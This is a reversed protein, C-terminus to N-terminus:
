VWGQHLRTKVMSGQGATIFPVSGRATLGGEPVGNSSESSSARKADTAGRAEKVDRKDAGWLAVSLFRWM